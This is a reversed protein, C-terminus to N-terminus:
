VNVEDDLMMLEVRKSWQVVMSAQLTEGNMELRQKRVWSIDCSFFWGGESGVFTETHDLSTPFIIFDYETQTNQM